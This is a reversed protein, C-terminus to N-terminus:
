EERGGGGAGEWVGQEVVAVWWRRWGEVVEVHIVFIIVLSNTIVEGEGGVGKRVRESRAAVCSARRIVMM